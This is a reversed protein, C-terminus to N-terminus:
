DNEAKKIYKTDDVQIFGCKFFLKKSSKNEDHIFAAFEFNNHLKLVAELALYAFGKGYEQSCILISVTAMNVTDINLRIVGVKRNEGIITYLLVDKKDLNNEMWECHESYTPASNNNFYTRTLPDIQWSHIINIDKISTKKLIVM